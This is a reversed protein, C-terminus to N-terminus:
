APAESAYIRYARDLLRELDAVLADDLVSFNFAIRGQLHKRLATSAQDMLEPNAYLPKLHYSVFTKAPKIGVFFDHSSAGSRKLTAMGYVSGDVLDQRYPDLLRRLRTETAELDVSAAM